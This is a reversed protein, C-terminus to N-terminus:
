NNRFGSDLKNNPRQAIAFVLSLYKTEDSDARSTLVIPVRAGAVVAAVRANACYVLSKYVANGVDLSPVVIIDARGAVPDDIKKAAAAERSIAVDLGFPGGVVAGAFEGGRGRQTLEAADVTSGIRPNVAEVPAICAVYPRDIGISRAVRVANELIREKDDVSPVINIAADTLFVIRPIGQIEFAAVHSLLSGTPVLRADKRLIAHMFSATTVLGKMLVSARGLSVADAAAICATDDDPVSVVDFGNGDVECQEALRRVVTPDGFCLFTAIGDRVARAMCLVTDESHPAAIAVCPVPSPVFEAISDLTPSAASAKTSM